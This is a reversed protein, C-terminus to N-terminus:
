KGRKAKLKRTNTSKPAKAKVNKPTLAKAIEKVSSLYSEYIGDDKAVVRVLELNHLPIDITSGYPAHMNIDSVWKYEEKESILYSYIPNKLRLTQKDYSVLEGTVKKGFANAGPSHYVGMYIKRM